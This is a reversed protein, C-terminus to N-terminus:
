ARRQWRDDGTTSAAFNAEPVAHGVGPAVVLLLAVAAIWGKFIMM